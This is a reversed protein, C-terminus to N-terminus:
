QGLSRIGRYCKAGVRLLVLTSCESALSMRVPVARETMRGSGASGGGVMGTSGRCISKCEDLLRTYLSVRGRESQVCKSTTASVLPLAM